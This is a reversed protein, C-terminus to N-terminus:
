AGSTTKSVNAYLFRLCYDLFFSKGRRYEGIVSIIVIHRLKVLENLFMTKLGKHNIKDDKPGTPNWIRVPKGLNKIQKPM